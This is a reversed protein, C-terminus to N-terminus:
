NQNNQKSFDKEVIEYLSKLDKIIFKENLGNLNYDSNIDALYIHVKSNKNKINEVERLIQIGEANKLEVDKRVGDINKLYRLITYPTYDAFIVSNKEVRTLINIGYQRDALYGRKNPNLFFNNNDRYDVQRSHILDINFYSVVQPMCHYFIITACISFSIIFIVLSDANIKEKLLKSHRLISSIGEILYRFGYGMFISFIIYDTIYFTYKTGGYSPWSTTKIFFLGNLLIILLLFLATKRDKKLLKWAGVLGIIVGLAPYQYILYLVYFILEKFFDFFNKPIFLYEIISPPGILIHYLIARLQNFNIIVLFFLVLLFLVTSIGLILIIKKRKEVTSNALHYYIIAPLTLILILHNFLGLFFILFKLAKEYINESPRISFYIILALLFGNLTYVEAIVAHSWFAHSVMLSLSGFAASLVSTTLRKVILFILIITCVGFFASVLNLSYALEFPLFSFLKGILIFLPHDSARGIHLKFRFVDWAFQSSDGGIITPALTFLYFLGSIFIILFLIKEKFINNFLFGQQPRM